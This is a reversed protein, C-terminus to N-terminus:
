HTVPVTPPDPKRYHRVGKLYLVIAQYHILAVVKVMQLPYSFFVKLLRQGSSAQPRGGMSTSLILGDEDYLEIRVAIKDAEYDFRFRYTGKVEMFPSVHFVKKVSLEDDRTIARRDDHFCLYCHREGFTNNVEALVARLRRDRDFCFWFSVPNFAYGMIRPLTLLTVDGDAECLQFSGLIDRIWQAPPTRGDGYDGTYISFLNGRDISFLASGKHETLERMSLALYCVPYRFANRRPRTRAHTVKMPVIQM